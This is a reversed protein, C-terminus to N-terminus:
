LHALVFRMADGRNDFEFWIQGLDDVWWELDLTSEDFWKKIDYQILMKPSGYEDADMDIVRETPVGYDAVCVCAGEKSGM